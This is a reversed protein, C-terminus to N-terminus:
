AAQAVKARRRLAAGVGGFGVILLAWAAPEPTGLSNGNVTLHDVLMQQGAPTNVFTGADLDITVYAVQTSGANAVLDSWTVFPFNTFYGGFNNSEVRQDSSSLDAYNGTNGWARGNADAFSGGGTPTGFYVYAENGSTDVLSFRPAGGAMPGVLMQYDADLQTISSLTIPAASFDLYVGAYG